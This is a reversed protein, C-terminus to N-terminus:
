FPSASAVAKRRPLSVSVAVFVPCFPKASAVAKRRPLSV